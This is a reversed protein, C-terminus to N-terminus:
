YFMTLILNPEAHKGEFIGITSTAFKVHVHDHKDLWDNIQDDMFELAAETLKSHFTRCRTAAISAPDVTRTYKSDDWGRSVGLTAASASHIRSSQSTDVEVHDDFGELEIPEFDETIGGATADHSKEFETVCHACLMRGDEYRAIGSDLHQKYISAGCEECQAHIDDTM